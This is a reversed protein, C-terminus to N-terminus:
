ALDGALQVGDSEGDRLLPGLVPEIQALRRQGVQTAGRAEVGMPVVVLEDVVERAGLVHEAAARDIRLLEVVATHLREGVKPLDVEDAAIPEVARLAPARVQLEEEEVLAGEAGGLRALVADAVVRLGGTLRVQRRGRWLGDSVGKRVRDRLESKQVLGD